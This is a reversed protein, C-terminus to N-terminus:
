QFRRFRDNKGYWAARHIHKLYRKMQLGFSTMKLIKRLVQPLYKKYIIPSASAAHIFIFYRLHKSFMEVIRCSVESTVLM